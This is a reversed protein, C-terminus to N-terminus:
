CNQSTTPVTKNGSNFLHSKEYNNSWRSGFYQEHWSNRRQPSVNIIFIFIVPVLKMREIYWQELWNLFLHLAFLKRIFNVSLNRFHLYAHYFFVNSLTFSFQFFNKLVNINVMLPISDNYKAQEKTSHELTIYRTWKYTSIKVSLFFHHEGTVPDPFLVAKEESWLM